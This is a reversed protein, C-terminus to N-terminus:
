LLKQRLVLSLAVVLALQHNKLLQLLVLSLMVVLVLRYSELLQSMTFVCLSFRVGDPSSYNGLQTSPLMDATECEPAVGM